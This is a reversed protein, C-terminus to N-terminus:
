CDFDVAEALAVMEAGDFCKPVLFLMDSLVLAAVDRAHRCEWSNHYGFHYYASAMGLTEARYVCAACEALATTCQCDTYGRKSVCYDHAMCCVDMADCPLYGDCAYYDYGCFRGYGTLGGRTCKCETVCISGDPAHNTGGKEFDNVPTRGSNKGRLIQETDLLRRREPSASFASGLIREVIAFQRDGDSFNGAFFLAAIKEALMPEIGFITAGDVKPPPLISASSLRNTKASAVFVLFVLVGVAAVVAFIRRTRRPPPAQM